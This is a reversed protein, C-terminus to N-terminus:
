RTFVVKKVQRNNDVDLRVFYIGAPVKVGRYNRTNWNVFCAGTEKKEHILARILTGHADYVKVKVDATHQSVFFHIRVTSGSPDFYLTLGNQKEIATPVEVDTADYILRFVTMSGGPLHMGTEDTYAGFVCRKEANKWTGWGNQEAGKENWRTELILNSRGDYVFATDFPFGPWQNAGTNFTHKQRYYVLLPINGDYNDNFNTTLQSLSTQCLTWELNGWTSVDKKDGYMQLEIINKAGDLESALVM